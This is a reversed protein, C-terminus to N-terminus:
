VQIPWDPTQLVKLTEPHSVKLEEYIAWSSSIFTDGGSKPLSRVHLALVETGM